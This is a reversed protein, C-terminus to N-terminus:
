APYFVLWFWIFFVNGKFKLNQLYKEYKKQKKNNKNAKIDASIM